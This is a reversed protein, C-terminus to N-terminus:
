LCHVTQKQMESLSKLEEFNFMYEGRWVANYILSALFDFGFVFFYARNHKNILQM